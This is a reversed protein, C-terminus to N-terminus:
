PILSGCSRCGWQVPEADPHQPDEVTEVDSSGCSCPAHKFFGPDAWAREFLEEVESREVFEGTWPRVHFFPVGEIRESPWDDSM